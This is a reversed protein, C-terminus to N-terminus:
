SCRRGHDLVRGLSFSQRVRYTGPRPAVVRTWEGAKEVCAGDATWYPSWRVRAVASGPARLRVLADNVGLREVGVSPAPTVEYV